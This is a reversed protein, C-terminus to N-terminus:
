TSGAFPLLGRWPTIIPPRLLLNIFCGPQLADGEFEAVGYRQLTAQGDLKANLPLFQFNSM